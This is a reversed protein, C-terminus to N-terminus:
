ALQFDGNARAGQQEARSAKQFILSRCRMRASKPFQFREATAHQALANDIFAIDNRCSSNSRSNIQAQVQDLLQGTAIRPHLNGPLHIIRITVFGNVRLLAM